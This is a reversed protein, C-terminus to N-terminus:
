DDDCVLREFAEDRSLRLWNPSDVAERLAARQEESLAPGDEADSFARLAADTVRKPSM